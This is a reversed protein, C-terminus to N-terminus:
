KGIELGLPDGFAGVGNSPNYSLAQFYLRLGGLAPNKPVTLNLESLGSTTTTTRALVMFGAVELLFGYQVAPLLM